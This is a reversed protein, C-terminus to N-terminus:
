FCFVRDNLQVLRYFLCLLVAKLNWAFKLVYRKLIKSINKNIQSTFSFLKKREERMFLHIYFSDFYQLQTWKLDFLISKVFLFLTDWIKRYLIRWKLQFISIASWFNFDIGISIQFPRHSQSHIIINNCHLLNLSHIVYLKHQFNCIFSFTSLIIYPWRLFVCKTYM